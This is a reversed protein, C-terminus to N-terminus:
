ESARSKMYSRLEKRIQRGSIQLIKSIELLTYGESLLELSEPLDDMKFEEQVDNLDSVNESDELLDTKFQLLSFTGDTGPLKVRRGFHDKLKLDAFYYAFSEFPGKQPDYKTKALCVLYWVTQCLDEFECRRVSHAYNKVITRVVIEIKDVKMCWRKELFEYEDM